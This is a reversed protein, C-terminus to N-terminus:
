VQIFIVHGHGHGHSHGHGHGHGHCSRRILAKFTVLSTGEALAGLQLFHLWWAYFAFFAYFSNEIEASARFVLIVPLTSRSSSKM